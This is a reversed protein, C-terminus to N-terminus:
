KKYGLTLIKNKLSTYLTDGISNWSLVTEAFERANKGYEEWREKNEIMNIIKDGFDNPEPDAFYAANKGELLYQADGVKNSVIPRGAALYDGTKHPWRGWNFIIDTMPLLLIDSASLFYKIEKFPRRDFFLIRENEKMRRNERVECLGIGRYILESKETRLPPGVVLLVVNNFKQCVKEFAKLLLNEDPHYNATYGLFITDKIRAPDSILIDLKLIRRSEFKELPKISETDAGSFLYVLNEEKVGIDLSRKYLAKSITTVLNAKRPAIEELYEEIKDYTSLVINHWKPLKPDNDRIIKLQSFIGGKGYWDCWDTIYFSKKLIKSLYAPIFDVPRHSFAYIIDYKNRIIHGLRYILGLPSWGNDLYTIYSYSPSEILKVKGINYRNTRYWRQSTTIMTVDHDKDALYTAFKLARFYNGHEKLNHNLILIKM